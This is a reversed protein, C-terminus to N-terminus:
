THRQQLGEPGLPIKERKPGSQHATVAQTYVWVVEGVLGLFDPIMGLDNERSPSHTACSRSSLMPASATRTRPLGSLTTQSVLDRNGLAATSPRRYDERRSTGVQM